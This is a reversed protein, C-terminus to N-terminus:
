CPSKFKFVLGEKCAKARERAIAKIQRHQVDKAHEGPHVALAECHFTVPGHRESDYELVADSCVGINGRERAKVPVLQEDEHPM